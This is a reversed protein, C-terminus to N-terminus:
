LDKRRYDCWAMPIIAGSECLRSVGRETIFESLKQLPHNSCVITSRQERYRADIIESLLMREHDTAMQVGVEDLVLLEREVFRRLESRESRGTGYTERVRRIADMATVYISSRKHVLVATAAIACAAHTKGTGVTGLLLLCAGSELNGALNDTFDRLAGLAAQQRSREERTGHLTWPVPTHYREPIGAEALVRQRVEEPSACAGKPPFCPPVTPTQRRRKGSTISVVDALRKM